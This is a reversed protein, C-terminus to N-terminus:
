VHAKKKGLTERVFALAGPTRKWFDGAEGWYHFAEDAGGVTIFGPHLDWPAPHTKKTLEKAVLPSYGAAETLAAAAEAKRDLMFLALVRGFLLAPMGDEPYRDCVALVEAPRRREFLCSVVLSRVGQNDNPNLDLLDQCIALAEGTDGRALCDLALGHYARLFPRNDLWGWELLDRGMVFDPPFADLGIRVAERWEHTAMFAMRSDRQIAVALHHRADLFEPFEKVLRRLPGLVKGSEGQDMLELAAHFREFVEGDLRPYRFRWEHDGMRQVDLSLGHKPTKAV